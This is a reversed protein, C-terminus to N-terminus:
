KKATRRRKKGYGWSALTHITEGVPVGYPTFAKPVYNALRGAFKKEKLYAKAKGVVNAASDYLDGGWWGGVPHLKRKPM